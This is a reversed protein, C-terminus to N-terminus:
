SIGVSGKEMPVQSESRRRRNELKMQEQQYAQEAQKMEELYKVVKKGLAVQAQRRCLESESTFPRSPGDLSTFDRGRELPSVVPAYYVPERWWQSAGKDGPGRYNFGLHEYCRIINIRGIAIRSRLLM